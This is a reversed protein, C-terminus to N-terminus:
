LMHYHRAMQLFGTSMITQLHSGTSMITLIQLQERNLRLEKYGTITIMGRLSDHLNKKSVSSHFWLM